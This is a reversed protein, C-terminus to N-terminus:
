ARKWYALKRSTSIISANNLKWNGSKGTTISKKVADPLNATLAKKTLLEADKLLASYATKTQDKQNVNLVLYVKKATSADGTVHYGITNPLPYGDGINKPQSVCYHENMGEITKYGSTALRANSM